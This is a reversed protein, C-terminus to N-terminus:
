AARESITGLYREGIWIDQIAASFLSLMRLDESRHRGFVDRLLESARALKQQDEETGAVNPRRNRRSIMM